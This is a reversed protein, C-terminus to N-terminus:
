DSPPASVDADHRSTLIMYIVAEKGESSSVSSVPFHMQGLECGILPLALSSGWEM